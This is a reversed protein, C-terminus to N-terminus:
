VMLSASYCYLGALIPQSPLKLRSGKYTNSTKMKGTKQDRRDKKKLQKKNPPYYAGDKKKNNTGCFGKGSM